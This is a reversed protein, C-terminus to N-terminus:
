ATTEGAVRVTVQMAHVRIVEVTTGAEVYEGEAVCEVKHGSFECTGVPRLPTIVRGSQGKLQELADRDPVADGQGRTPPTLTVAKGFRTKPLIRYSTILTTPILGAAIAIGVWGLVVSQQFFLTLGGGLCALACVMLLGGSPVFVEAVILLACAVYLLVAFGIEWAM